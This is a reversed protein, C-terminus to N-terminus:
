RCFRAGQTCFLYRMSLTVVLLCVDPYTVGRVSSELSFVRRTAFSAEWFEISPEKWWYEFLAVRVPKLLM